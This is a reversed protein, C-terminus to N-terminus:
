TEKYLLDLVGWKKKEALPWESLEGNEPLPRERLGGNKFGGGACIYMYWKRINIGGGGM